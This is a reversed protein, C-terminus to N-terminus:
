LNQVVGQSCLFLAAILAGPLLIYVTGRILDVWFNGITSISQRAFGRVLAIAVAMGAAASAFNQVTLGAMQVFYSLTSEGSYAQWNTNTPFSIATNFALDPTVNGGNFGQPNFPLFGQLRQLLYVFLFSFISFALLSGAYQTWRQETEERVGIAKYCLVEVPRCLFHLFTRKGEFLRAMFTGVPKTLALILLFFILIQVIGYSTM